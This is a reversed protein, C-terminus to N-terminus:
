SGEDAIGDGDQDPFEVVFVQTMDNGNYTSVRKGSEDKTPIAKTYALMKGDPSWVLEGREPSDGHPTLFVTHGLKPGPKVCTVAVGADTICAISNGTPHWRVGPGAGKPFHTAQVPRKAPDPHDDAGDSPIIFVQTTGDAAKGYYAIREGDLTGRVNGAAFGHTIRRVRVGKPPSPVRTASGSDATTIDVDAPVDVVFLSEEYDVGNAARVKGIFARMLGHRGIWSDGYAKEIEGPKSNDKPVVPVLLAFYHSAGGPAKPHREMYGVTRDYQTLLADDYTFGIRKGDATYEHRHTGGRHAGPLTDRSTEVDRFDVRSLKGSGDAIVEVGNRNTKAYYGRVPVDELLPGHIFVVQNEVPSFSAAGAGPAAQKGTVSKAPKYLITEIGTAIEVKEISQSNEIGPGLMERTDYCLFRGDASFNDNNDLNHNKPSSTVQREDASAVGGFAVMGMLVTSFFVEAFVEDYM